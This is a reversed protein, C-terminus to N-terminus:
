VQSAQSAQSPRVRQRRPRRRGVLTTTANENAALSASTTTAEPLDPHGSGADCAADLAEKTRPVKHMM